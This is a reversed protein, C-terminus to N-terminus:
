VRLGVSRMLELANSKTVVGPRLTYDFHMAGDVFRDEFHVNAARAGLDDAIAALALDHTTVLGIAGSDVLGRILADAGHRRDHSNTGHLIEDLLFLLPPGGAAGVDVLARLRRIEAYFHSIGRQLSDAIRMAAGVSLPSLALEAACAPGGAQALVANIGVTRLLTSKGSMNSGSVLLLQRAGDLRVDNPVCGPLLPHVLGRGHFRPAGAGDLAPRTAAPHETALVALSALAELEAVTDLWREVDPGSEARWRELAFAAHLGVFLLYAIPAFIMNRRSDVLQEQRRLARIRVSPPAGGAAGTAGTAGTASLGAVLEALRPSRFSEGELRELLAALLDLEHETAHIEGLVKRIRAAFPAVFLASAWATALFPLLTAAGAIWAALAVLMAVTFLPAVLRPWAGGLRRPERCWALLRAPDVRAGSEEGLVALDERLDLREGLEAVAEQRARVVDPPAPALLWRALMAQGTRTRAQCIRPYLSGPGLVDLDAAYPHDDDLWEAGDPGAAVAEGAPEMRAVAAEHFAAGREARRRAREAVDHGRVLALFVALNLLPIWGPFGERFLALFSTLGLLVFTGLRFWGFARERRRLAGAAARREAARRRCDDLRQSIDPM